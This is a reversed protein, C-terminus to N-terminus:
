FPEEVQHRALEVRVALGFRALRRPLQEADMELATKEKHCDPCLSQVNGARHQARYFSMRASTDKRHHEDGQRIICDFELDAGWAPIGCVACRNGLKLLLDVRAKQAWEKQRRSV